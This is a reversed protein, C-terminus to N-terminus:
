ALDEITTNFDKLNLEDAALIAPVMVGGGKISFVIGLNIPGSAIFSDNKYFGNLEPFKKLASVVAKMLLTPLLMRESPDLNTNKEDLWKMLSDLHIREKLYYHPIEKKSRSMLTSIAQRLNIGSFSKENKPNLKLEVDKLVIEGLSGTGTISYLDISNLEALKKAAPSIRLRPSTFQNQAEDGETNLQVIPKGVPIVDGVKALIDIVKGAKFSEIDIVSKTTEVSAIVQNKIINDGLKIKWEMIKGQDMDAGLSPMPINYNM